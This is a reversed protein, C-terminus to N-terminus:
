IQDPELSDKIYRMTDGIFNFFSYNTDRGGGWYSGVSPIIEPLQQVFFIGDCCLWRWCKGKTIAVCDPRVLYWTNQHAYGRRSAGLNFDLMPKCKIAAMGVQFHKLIQQGKLEQFYFAPNCQLM